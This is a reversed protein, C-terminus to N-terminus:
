QPRHEMLAPNVEWKPSPRRGPGKRPKAQIPRVYHHEVMEEIVDRVDDASGAARGLGRQLERLSFSAKQNRLVWRVAGRRTLFFGVGSRSLVSLLAYLSCGM